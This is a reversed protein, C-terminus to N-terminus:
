KGRKANEMVFFWIAKADKEDQTEVTNGGLIKDVASYRKKADGIPTVNNEKLKENVWARLKSQHVPFVGSGSTWSVAEIVGVAAPLAVGSFQSEYAVYDYPGFKQLFDALVEALKALREAREPKKSNCLSTIDIQATKNDSYLGLLTTSPDIALLKM